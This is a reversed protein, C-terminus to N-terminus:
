DRVFRVSYGNQKLSESHYLYNWNFLLNIHKGSETNAITQTWFITRDGYKHFSSYTMNPTHSRDGRPYANFGSSNNELQNNGPAGDSTSGNWGTTSSMAKAIKNGTTTGDFNYGNAILYNELESWEADTPVHWGEPAFEKNPTNEDNDHIGAVAYWNYLKGKSPDNDYYCWAGTTLNAWETADTVQPIPTGDRYTVMEANKVTWVQDGYTLYPYSNGDQDTVTGSNIVAQLADIQDQLQNVKNELIDFYKKTVADQDDTPDVVNKIQHNEASVTGNLLIDPSSTFEYIPKQSPSNVVDNWQIKNETWGSYYFHVHKEGGNSNNPENPRWNEYTLPSGDVWKWGGSPESYNLDNEDQYLGIFYGYDGDDAPNPLNNFVQQEEDTSNIVYMQVGIQDGYEKAGTWTMLEHKIFYHNNGISFFLDLDPNTGKFENLTMNNLQSYTHTFCVLMILLTLFLKKM